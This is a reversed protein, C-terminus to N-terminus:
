VALWASGGGGGRVQFAFSSVGTVLRGETGAAPLGAMQRPLNWCTGPGAAPQPRLAAEMYPNPASLHLLAQLSRRGLGAHSHLLGMVGAAAETHGIWSKSAAATLPQSRQLQQGGQAKADGGLLAAAAAGMEIPDGLTTGAYHPPLLTFCPQGAQRAM